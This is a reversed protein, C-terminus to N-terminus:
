GRSRGDACLNFYSRLEDLANEIEAHAAPPIAAPGYSAMMAGGLALLATAARRRVPEM